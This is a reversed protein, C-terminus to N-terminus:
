PMYLDQLVKISEMDKIKVVDKDLYNIMLSPSIVEPSFKMLQLTTVGNYSKRNNFDNRYNKYVVENLILSPSIEDIKFSLEYFPEVDKIGPIMKQVSVNSFEIVKSSVIVADNSASKKTSNCSFFVFMLVIGAIKSLLSM